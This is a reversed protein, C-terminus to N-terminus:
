RGDTRAMQWAPALWHRERQAKWTKTASAANFYKLQCDLNTSLMVKGRMKFFDRAFELDNRVEKLEANENTIASQAQCSLL